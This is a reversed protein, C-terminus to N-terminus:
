VGTKVMAGHEAFDADDGLAAGIQAHKNTQALANCGPPIQTWADLL